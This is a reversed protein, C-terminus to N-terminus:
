RRGCWDRWMTRYGAEIARAYGVRDCLPSRRMRDRLGSRLGALVAPDAALEAARQVYEEETAAALRELGLARLFLLGYRGLVRNGILSM